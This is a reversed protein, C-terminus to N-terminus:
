APSLLVAVLQSLRYQHRHAGGEQMVHKTTRFVFRPALLDRYSKHRLFASPGIAFSYLVQGILSFERMHPSRIHPM